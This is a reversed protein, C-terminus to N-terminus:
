PEYSPLMVCTLLAIMILCSYICKDQHRRTLSEEGEGDGLGHYEWTKFIGWEVEAETEDQNRHYSTTSCRDPINNHFTFYNYVGVSFAQRGAM